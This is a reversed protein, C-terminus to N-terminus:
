EDVIEAFLRIDPQLLLDRAIQAADLQRAAAPREEGVSGEVHAGARLGVKRQLHDAVCSIGVVHASAVLTKV